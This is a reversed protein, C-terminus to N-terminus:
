NMMWAILIKKERPLLLPNKLVGRKQTRLRSIMNIWSLKANEQYEGYKIYYENWADDQKDQYEKLNKEFAAIGGKYLENFPTNEDKSLTIGSGDFSKGKNEPNADWATRADEIKKRLADEKQRDITQMEKEFNLEMKLLPRPRVKM